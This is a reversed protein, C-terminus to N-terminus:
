GALVEAVVDPRNEIVKLLIRAAAEPQRRGQEWDRVAGVTFGYRDAFAAQTLKMKRRMRKIDVTAPVHVRFARADVKGSVYDAAEGLGKLIRDVNKKRSM